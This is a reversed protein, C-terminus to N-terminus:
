DECKGQCNSGGRDKEAAGCFGCGGKSGLEVRGGTEPDRKSIWRQVLVWGACLLGLGLIAVLHSM